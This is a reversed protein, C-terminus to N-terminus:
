AVAAAATAFDNFPTSAPLTPPHDGGLRRGPSLAIRSLRLERHYHAVLALTATWERGAASRRHGAADKGRGIAAGNGTADHGTSTRGHIM